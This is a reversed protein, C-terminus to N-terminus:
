VSFWTEKIPFPNWRKVTIYPYFIVTRRPLFIRFTFSWSYIDGKWVRQNYDWTAFNFFKAKDFDCHVIHVKSLINKQAVSCAWVYRFNQTKTDWQVYIQGLKNSHASFVNKWMKKIKLSWTRSKGWFIDKYGGRRGYNHGQIFVILLLPPYLTM